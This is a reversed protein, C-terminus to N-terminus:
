TARDSPSLLIGCDRDIPPLMIDGRGAPSQTRRVQGKAALEGVVAISQMKQLLARKPPLVSSGRHIAIPSRVELANDAIPHSTKSKRRSQLSGFHRLSKMDALLLIDAVLTALAM